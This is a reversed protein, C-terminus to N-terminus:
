PEQCACEMTHFFYIANGTDHDPDPATDCDDAYIPNGPYGDYTVRTVAGGGGRIPVCTMGIGACFVACSLREFTFAMFYCRGDVCARTEYEPRDAVPGIAGGAADFVDQCDHDCSGCANFAPTCESGCAVAGEACMPGDADPPADGDPLAPAGDPAAHGGDGPPTVSESSGCAGIASLLTFGVLCHIARAGGEANCAQLM